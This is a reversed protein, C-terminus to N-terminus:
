GESERQNTFATILKGLNVDWPITTKPPWTFPKGSPPWLQSLAANNRGREFRLGEPTRATPLFVQVVLHEIGFTVFYANSDRGGGPLDRWQMGVTWCVRGTGRPDSGTGRPATKATWIWAGKPVNGQRLTQATQEDVTPAAQTQSTLVAIVCCWRALEQQEAPDDLRCPQGRVAVDLFLKESSLDLRNMWRSNCPGCACNVKLDSEDKAWIRIEGEGGQGQGIRHHVYPDPHPMVHDLWAKRFIHANTTPSGGCFICPV